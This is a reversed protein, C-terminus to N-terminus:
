AASKQFFYRQNDPHRMVDCVYNAILLLDKQGPYKKNVLTDAKEFAKDQLIDRHLARIQRWSKKIEQQSDKIQKPGDMAKGNSPPAVISDCLTQLAKWQAMMPAPQVAPGAALPHLNSSAASPHTAMDAPIAADPTRGMGSASGARASKIGEQALEKLALAVSIKAQARSLRAYPKPPRAINKNLYLPLPLSRPAPKTRIADRAERIYAPDLARSAPPLLNGPM